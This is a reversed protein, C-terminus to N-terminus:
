GAIWSDKSVINSTLVSLCFFNCFSITVPQRGCRKPLSSTCCNGSASKKIVVRLMECAQSSSTEVSPM